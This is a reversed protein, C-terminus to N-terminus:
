TRNYRRMQKYFLKENKLDDRFQLLEEKTLEDTYSWIIDIEIDFISIMQNINKIAKKTNM